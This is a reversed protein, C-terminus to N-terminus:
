LNEKLNRGVTLPCHSEWRYLVFVGICYVEIYVICRYRWRYPVGAGICYVEM